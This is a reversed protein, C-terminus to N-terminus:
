DPQYSSSAKNGTSNKFFKEVISSAINYFWSPFITLIHYPRPLSCTTFYFPSIQSPLLSLSLRMYRAGGHFKVSLHDIGVSCYSCNLHIGGSTKNMTVDVTMKLSIGSGSVDVTGHDKVNPRFLLMECQSSKNVRLM